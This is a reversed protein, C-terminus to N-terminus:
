NTTLPGEFSITSGCFSGNVRAQNADYDAVATYSLACSGSRGDSTEWSLMENTPTNLSVRQEGEPLGNVVKVHASSQLEGSIRVVKGHVDFGCNRPSHAAEADAEISQAAHDITGSVHADVATTGGRPCPVNVKIEISFPAPITASLGMGSTSFSGTPGSISTSISGGFHTAIQLALESLEENTLSGRPGTTENSCATASLLVTALALVAPRGAFQM